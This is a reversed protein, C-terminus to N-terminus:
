YKYPIDHYSETCYLLKKILAFHPDPLAFKKGFDFIKSLDFTGLDFDLIVKMKSTHFLRENLFDNWEFPFKFINLVFYM